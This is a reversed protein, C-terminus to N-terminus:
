RSQTASSVFELDELWEEMIQLYRPHYNSWGSGSRKRREEACGTESIIINHDTGEILIVKNKPNGAKKLAATFAQMGQVPNVNKDLDGFFVLTPINTKEFIKIPDYFSESNKEKPKWEEETWIATVFGMKRVMPDDVLPQACKIYEDYNKAYFLGIFDRESKKAKEESVGECM